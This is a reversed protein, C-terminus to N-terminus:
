RWKTLEENITEELVYFFNPNELTVPRCTDWASYFQRTWIGTRSWAHKIWPNPDRLVIAIMSQRYPLNNSVEITYVDEIVQNLCLQQKPFTSDLWTNLIEEVPSINM